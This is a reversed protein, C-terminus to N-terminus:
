KKETNATNEVYDDDIVEHCKAMVSGKIGKVNRLVSTKLKFVKETVETENLKEVANEYEVKDKDSLFVYFNKDDVMLGGADNKKIHKKMLTQMTKTYAKEAVNLNAITKSISLNTDFDEIDLNGIENVGMMIRKININIIKKSEQTDNATKNEATTEATEM